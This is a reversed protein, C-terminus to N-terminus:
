HGSLRAYVDAIDTYIQASELPTRAELSLKSIRDPTASKGELLRAARKAYEAALESYGMREVEGTPTAQPLARCQGAHESAWDRADELTRRSFEGGRADLCGGCEAIYRVDLADPNANVTVTGADTVTVLAGALNQFAIVPTLGRMTNTITM